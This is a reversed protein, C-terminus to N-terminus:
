KELCKDPMPMDVRIFRTSGHKGDLSLTGDDYRVVNDMGWIFEWVISDNNLLKGGSKYIKEDPSIRCQFAKGDSGIQLWVSKGQYKWIGVLAPNPYLEQAAATVCLSVLGIVSLFGRAHAMMFSEVAKWVSNVLFGTFCM